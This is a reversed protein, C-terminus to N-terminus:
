TNESPITRFLEDLSTEGSHVFDLGREFMTKFKKQRAAEVIETESAEKNILQKITNDVTLVEHVARRSSFGTQNCHSCGVGYKLQNTKVLSFMPHSKFEDLKESPLDTICKPCIVRILRQAVV